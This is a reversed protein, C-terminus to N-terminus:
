WFLFTSSVVRGTCVACSMGEISFKLTTSTGDAATTDAAPLLGAELDEVSLATSTSSSSSSRLAPSSSLADDERTLSARYADLDAIVEADFGIADLADMAAETAAHPDVAAFPKHQLAPSMTVPVFPGDGTQAFCLVADAPDQYRFLM